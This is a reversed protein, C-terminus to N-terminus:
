SRVKLKKLSKLFAILHPVLNQILAEEYQESDKDLQRAGSHEFIGHMAEHFLANRFVEAPLGARIVVVAAPGHFYAYCDQLNHDEEATRESVAHDIGCLSINGLAKM